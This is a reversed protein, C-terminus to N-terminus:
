ARQRRWEYWVMAAMQPTPLTEDSPVWVPLGDVINDGVGQVVLMMADPLTALYLSTGGPRLSIVSAGAARAAAITRDDGQSRGIRSRFHAGSGSRVVKPTGLDVTGEGQIIAKAGMVSAAAMLAGAAAPDRMDRLLMAPWPGDRLIEDGGIVVSAIGAIDPASTTSTMAAMVEDSVERVPVKSARVDILLAAKRREGGPTVFVERLRGAALAPGLARAGEVFVLGKADRRRRTRLRQARVIHPNAVSSIM